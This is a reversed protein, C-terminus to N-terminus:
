STMRAITDKAIRDIANEDVSFTSTRIQSVLLRHKEPGVKACFADFSCGAAGQNIRTADVDPGKGAPSGVLVRDSAIPLYVRALADAPETVPKFAGNALEVFVVSDGLLLDEAVTVIRWELSVLQAHRAGSFDNLREHLTQKHHNAVFEAVKGALGDLYAQIQPRREQVRAKVLPRLDPVVHKRFAAHFSSPRGPPSLLLKELIDDSQLIQRARAVLPELGATLMLRLHKSRFFVHIAFAASQKADV